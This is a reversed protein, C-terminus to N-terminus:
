SFIVVEEMEACGNEHSIKQLHTLSAGPVRLCIEKWSLLNKGVPYQATPSINNFTDPHEHAKSQTSDFKWNQQIYKQRIFFYFFNIEQNSQLIFDSYCYQLEIIGIQVIYKAPFKEEFYANLHTSFHKRLYNFFLLLFCEEGKLSCYNRWSM